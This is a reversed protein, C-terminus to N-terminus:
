TIQWLEYSCYWVVMKEADFGAVMRWGGDDVGVACRVTACQYGWVVFM